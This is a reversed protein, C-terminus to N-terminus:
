TSGDSSADLEDFTKFVADRTRAAIYEIEDSTSTYAPALFVHDGLNGDKTGNGPFLSIGFKDLGNLYIKNAIDASRPFPEKSKKDRVLEIGWFLGKGRIDGVYPHESLHERLLKELLAGQKRVNAVLNEERIIRQVELAAACGVPHGQYTHGHSFAGSGDKLADAVRHNILMGAMPAYGGGLGKAITQIDPVVDEQEWVHLTGSRGMGSMVEDLILLAGYKDCVSKMAKFYGPVAPVCGLTAGVVPEAVFACVTDPGLEQFKRDLEDALQAVYEETTQGETMGRYANCASVRGINPLLLDLFLSRRAVHGSMSLSGLTTGHYSGERAIFNVRKPQQPSLELYYQRAMKMAAEMAESGSCMIFAKSMAGGTGQVLEAALQEGVEHGFFTSNCYAFKDIQEVMAKKVRENNMGICAVAAGCTTDLITRGDSFTLHNGNASVVQPPVSKISRYLVASTVPAGKGTAETALKSAPGTKSVAEVIGQPDTAM